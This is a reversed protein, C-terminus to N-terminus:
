IQGAPCSFYPSRKGSYQVRGILNRDFGKHVAPNIERLDRFNDGPRHFLMLHDLM